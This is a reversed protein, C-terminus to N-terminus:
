EPPRNMRPRPDWILGWMVLRNEMGHDWGAARMFSSIEAM